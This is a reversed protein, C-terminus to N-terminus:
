DTDNHDLNDDPAHGNNVRRARLAAMEDALGRTTLELRNLVHTVNGLAEIMRETVDRQAQIEGALGHFAGIIQPGLEVAEAEAAAKLKDTSIRARHRQDADNM